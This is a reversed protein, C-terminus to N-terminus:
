ARRAPPFVVVVLWTVLGFSLALATAAILFLPPPEAITPASLKDVVRYSYDADVKLAVFHSLLKEQRRSLAELVSRSQDGKLYESIFDIREEISDLYGERVLDDSNGILSALFRVALDRNEHRVTIRVIDSRNQIKVMDGLRERMIEGDIPVDAPLGFLANVYRSPSLPSLSIVGNEREADTLELLDHVLKPDSGYIREYVANTQLSNLFLDFPGVDGGGFGAFGFVSTQFSILENSTELDNQVVTVSANFKSSVALVFLVIALFTVFLASLYWYRRARIISYIDSFSLETVMAM